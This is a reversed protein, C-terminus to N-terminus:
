PLWYKLAAADGEFVTALMHEVSQKKYAMETVLPAFTDARAGSKQQDLFGRKAANRMVTLITTYALQTASPKANLADHVQHVTQAGAEWIHQMVKLQLSGLMEMPKTDTHTIPEPIIGLLDLIEHQIDELSANISMLLQIAVSNSQETLAFLIHETGIYPHGWATAAKGALDFAKRVQDTFPLPIKQESADAKGTYYAKLKDAIGLNKLAFGAVGNGEEATAILLHETDITPQGCKVAVTQALVIVKRARDTMRAFVGDNAMLPPMNSFTDVPM